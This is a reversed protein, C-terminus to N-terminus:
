GTRSPYARKSSSCRSSPFEWASSAPSPQLLNEVLLQRILRWRTAGLSLRFAMERARYGSRALLLSAVNACGILLVFLVAGLLRVVYARSGRTMAESMREVRPRVGKNTAPHAEAVRSAVSELDASAQADTVGDALRGFANYIRASRPRGSTTALLGLPMPLWLQSAWPFSFGEPMVGIVTAHEDNARIQRGLVTRDGGYRRQWLEYSIIVTTAATAPQEDEPLFDRGLIPEIELLRFADVSIYTGGMSEPAYTDDSVNMLGLSYHAAIGRFSRSGERWDELDLKSVGGFGGQENQTGLVMIREDADSLRDYLLANVMTFVANTMGIGVALVLVVTVAFGRDRRVLRLAFQVDQALSQLWRWIWVERSAERVLTLNGLARQVAGSGGIGKLALERQKLAAHFQLEEDLEADFRRRRLLYGLRRLLRGM